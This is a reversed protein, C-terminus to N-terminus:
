VVTGDEAEVEIAAADQRAEITATIREYTVIGDALYIPNDPDRDDWVMVGGYDKSERRIEAM